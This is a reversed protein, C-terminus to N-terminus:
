LENLSNVNDILRNENDLLNWLLAGRYAVLKKLFDTKPHPIIVVCKRDLIITELERLM